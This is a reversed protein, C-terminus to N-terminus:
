SLGDDPGLHGSGGVAFRRRPRGVGPGRPTGRRLSRAAEPGPSAHPLRQGRRRSLAGPLDGSAGRGQCSPRLDRRRRGNRGALGPSGPQRAFWPRTAPDLGGLTMLRLHRRHQLDPLPFRTTLVVVGPLPEGALEELLRGLEPHVFRGFWPGTEHQAVETGDFVLVWRQRRLLPLLHDVCYTASVDPPQDLGAVHAYLERLCLDADKGRYFSWLFVGDAQRKGAVWQELWHQVIATKGQGGPGLFAVVSPGDPALADDLLTLEPARGFFHIPQSTSHHIFLSPGTM